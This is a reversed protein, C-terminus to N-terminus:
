ICAQVRSAAVQRSGGEMKSITGPGRITAIGGSPFFCRGGRTVGSCLPRDRRPSSHFPATMDAGSKPQGHKSTQADSEQGQTCESGCFSECVGEGHVFWKGIDKETGSIAAVNWTGVKVRINRRRTYEAKREKVARSLSLVDLGPNEIEAYESEHDRHVSASPSQSQTSM